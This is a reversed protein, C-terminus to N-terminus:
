VNSVFDSYGGNQACVAICIQPIPFYTDEQIDLLKLNYPKSHRTWIEVRFNGTGNDGSAHMHGRANLVGAHELKSDRSHDISCELVMVFTYDPGLSQGEGHGYGCCLSQMELCLLNPM